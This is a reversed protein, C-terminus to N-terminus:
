NLSIFIYLQWIYLTQRPRCSAYSFLLVTGSSHLGLSFGIAMNNNIEEENKDFWRHM